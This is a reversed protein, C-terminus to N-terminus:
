QEGIRSRSLCIGGRKVRIHALGALDKVLADDWEGQELTGDVMVSKGKPAHWITQSVAATATFWPVLVALALRFKSMMRVVPERGVFQDWLMNSEAEYERWKLILGNTLKVIV